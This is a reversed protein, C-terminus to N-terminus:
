SIAASGALTTFTFRGSGAPKRGGDARHATAFVSVVIAERDARVPWSEVDVDTPFDGGALEFFECRALRIDGALQASAREAAAGAMLALLDIGNSPANTLM